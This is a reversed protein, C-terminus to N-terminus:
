NQYIIWSGSKSDFKCALQELNKYAPGKLVRGSWGDFESGHCPCKLIDGEISTIMCGAHTCQASFAKLSKENKAIICGEMITIGQAIDGPIKLEKRNGNVVQNRASIRYWLVALAAVSLYGLMSFFSKRSIKGATNM